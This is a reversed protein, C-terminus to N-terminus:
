RLAFGNLKPSASGPLHEKRDPSDDARGLARPLHFLCYNNTIYHTNVASNFSQLLCFCITNHNSSAGRCPLTFDSGSAGPALGFSATPHLVPLSPTPSQPVRSTARFTSAVRRSHRLTEVQDRSDGRGRELDESCAHPPSRAALPLSRLLKCCDSTCLYPCM